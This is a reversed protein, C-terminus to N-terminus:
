YRAAGPEGRPARGDAKKISTRGGVDKQWSSFLKPLDDEVGSFVTWVKQSRTNSDNSSRFSSELRM